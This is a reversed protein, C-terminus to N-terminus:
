DLKCEGLPLFQKAIGLFSCKKAADSESLHVEYVSFVLFNRQEIPLAPMVLGVLAGGFQGASDPNAEGRKRAEETIKSAAYGQVFANFEARSPNTAFLLAAIVALGLLLRSM